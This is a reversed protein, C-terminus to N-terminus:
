LQDGPVREWQLLGCNSSYGPEVEPRLLGGANDRMFTVELYISIEGPSTARVEVQLLDIDTAGVKVENRLDGWRFRIDRETHDLIELKFSSNLGVITAEEGDLLIKGELLWIGQPAHVLQLALLDTEGVKMKGGVLRVLTQSQAIATASAVIAIAFLFLFVRRTLIM